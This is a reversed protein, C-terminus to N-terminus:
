PGSLARDVLERLALAYEEPSWQLRKADAFAAGGLRAALDRDGLIRILARALARHNRSPVLIGNRETVVMDPIGGVTSAVVPRGRSFAEIVVRGMGESLSPLVLATADDLQHAIDAPALRPFWDVSGPFASRLRIIVTELPGSGVVVLRANPIRAAVEPWARALSAPDKVRELAGVWVLTPTVPLPRPSSIAFSGIDSYTPFVAIPPSGTAQEALRATFASVARTGDARRLLASALREAIPAYLRRLRSGYLRAASRWDGHVEVILKPRPRFFSLGILGAVGEYPSQFIIVDPRFRKVARRIRYISSAYFTLGKLRRVRTGCLDFRPDAQDIQGRSALVVYDLHQAVADWKKVLGPSLPLDYQTNGVFVVRPKM